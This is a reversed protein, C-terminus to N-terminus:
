MEPTRANIQRTNIMKGTKLHTIKDRNVILMNSTGYLRCIISNSLPIIDMLNNLIYSEIWCYKLIEFLRSAYDLEGVTFPFTEISCSSPPPSCSFTQHRIRYM